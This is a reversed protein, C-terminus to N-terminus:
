LLKQHILLSLNMYDWELFLLELKILEILQGDMLINIAIRDLEDKYTTVGYVISKVFDNDVNLNEKIVDDLNFPVCRSEYIDIQYLIVMIVNRLESRSKAM